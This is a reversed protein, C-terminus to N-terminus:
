NDRLHVSGFEVGDVTGSVRKHLEKLRGDMAENLQVFNNLTEAFQTMLTSCMDLQEGQERIQEYMTTLIVAIPGEINRKRLEIQFQNFTLGSM